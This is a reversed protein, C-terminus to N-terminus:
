NAVHIGLHCGNGTWRCDGSCWDATRGQPCNECCDAGHAGCSVNEHFPWLPQKPAVIRKTTGGAMMMVSNNQTNCSPGPQICGTVDSINCTGHYAAKAQSATITRNAWWPGVLGISSLPQGACSPSAWYEQFALANTHLMGYGKVMTGNRAPADPFYLTGISLVLRKTWDTFKGEWLDGTGNYGMHEIRVTYTRGEQMEYYIQCHSGVGEGGFRECTKRGDEVWGTKHSDDKDWCSFIITHNEFPNTSHNRWSQTGFYGGAGSETWYETSAFVANGPQEDPTPMTVWIHDMEMDGVIKGAGVYGVYTGPGRTGLQLAEEVNEASFAIIASM